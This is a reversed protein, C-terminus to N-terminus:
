CQRTASHINGNKINFIYLFIVLKYEIFIFSSECQHYEKTGVNERGMM